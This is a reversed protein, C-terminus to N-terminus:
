RTSSTITACSGGVKRWCRATNEYVAAGVSARSGFSMQRFLRIRLKASHGGPAIDTAFEGACGAAYLDRPVQVGSWPM